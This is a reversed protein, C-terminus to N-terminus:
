RAPRQPADQRQTDAGQQRMFSQAGELGAALEVSQLARNKDLTWEKLPTDPVTDRRMEALIDRRAVGTGLREQWQRAWRAQPADGSSEALSGLAQFAADGNGAYAYALAASRALAGV